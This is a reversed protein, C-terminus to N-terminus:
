EYYFRDSSIYTGDVFYRIETPWGKNNYIFERTDTFNNVPGSVIRGSINNPTFPAIRSFSAHFLYYQPNKKDDYTFTQTELVCEDMAEIPQSTAGYTMTVVCSENGGQSRSISNLRGFSDYSYAWSTNGFISSVILDGQYTYSRNGGNSYAINVVRGNLYEYESVFAEGNGDSSLSRVRDIYGDSDYVYELYQYPTEPGIYGIDMRILRLDNNPPYTISTNKNDDTSCSLTLFLIIVTLYLPRM